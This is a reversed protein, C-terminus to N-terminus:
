SILMCTENTNQVNKRMRVNKSKGHIRNNIPNVNLWSHFFTILPHVQENTLGPRTVYALICALKNERFFSTTASIPPHSILV